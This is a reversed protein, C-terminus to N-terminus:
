QRENTKSSLLTMQYYQFWDLSLSTSSEKNLDPIILELKLHQLLNFINYVDILLMVISNNPFLKYVHYSGVKYKIAGHYLIKIDVWLFEDLVM